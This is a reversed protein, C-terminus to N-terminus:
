LSRGSLLRCAIQEEGCRAKGSVPFSAVIEPLAAGGTGPAEIALAAGQPIDPATAPWTEVWAPPAELKPVGFYRLRYRGGEHLVIPPLTALKALVASPEETIPAKRLVLQEVGAKEEIAFEVLVFAPPPRGAPKTGIFRLRDPTAEFVPMLRGLRDPVFPRARGLERVLLQQLDLAAVMGSVREEGREIALNTSGLARTVITALLALLTMAVLLEVLTFGGEGRRM